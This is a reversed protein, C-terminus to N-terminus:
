FEGAYIEGAYFWASRDLAPRVADVAVLIKEIDNARGFTFGDMGEPTEPTGDQLPLVSRLAEVNRLYREADGARPAEAATWPGWIPLACTQVGTM